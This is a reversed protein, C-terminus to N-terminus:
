GLPERYPDKGDPYRYDPLSVKPQSGALDQRAPQMPKVDHAVEGKEVMPLITPPIEMARGFGQASSPPVSVPAPSETKITKESEESKQLIPNFIKDAVSEAINLATDESIGVERMINAIYDKPSEFAYIIFMTEQELSAIQETDLANIKGIEQVLAKWPVDNIARQLNPSLKRIQEEILKDMENM